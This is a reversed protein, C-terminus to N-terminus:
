PLSLSVMIWMNCVTKPCKQFIKELAQIASKNLYTSFYIKMKSISITIPSKSCRRTKIQLFNTYLYWLFDKKKKTSHWLILPEKFKMTAYIAGVSANWWSAYFRLHIDLNHHQSLLAWKDKVYPRIFIFYFLLEFCLWKLYCIIFIKIATLAIVDYGIIFIVVAIFFHIVPGMTSLPVPNTFDIFYLLLIEPFKHIFFRPFIKCFHM